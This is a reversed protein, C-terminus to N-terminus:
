VSAKEKGKRLYGLIKKTLIPLLGIATFLLLFKVSIIDNVNELTALQSGAYVYLITGAIMGIQSIFFFNQLKIKTLGFLLNILFFPFVPVLRMAFLYFNGEKEIGDNIIKIKDSFKNELYSRFFFRSILMALTAGLSSAFSVIITGTTTGFIFGAFLTLITAGPISLATSVVYLSSYIAIFFVPKNLYIDKFYEKQDKIYDLSLYSSIDFYKYISAVTIVVFLVKIIKNM